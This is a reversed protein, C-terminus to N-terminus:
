VPRKCTGCVLRCERRCEVCVGHLFREKVPAHHCDSVVSVMHGCYDCLHQVPRKGAVYRQYAMLALLILLLVGVIAVATICALSGGESQLPLLPPLPPM